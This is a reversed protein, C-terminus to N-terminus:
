ADNKISAEDRKRRRMVGLGVSGMALLGLMSFSGPEPIATAGARIGNGSADYFGEFIRVSFESESGEFGGVLDFQLRLWGFRSEGDSDEFSIGALGPVGYEFGNAYFSPTSSSSAVKKKAVKKKKKAVRVVLDANGYFGYNSQAPYKVLFGSSLNAFAFSSSSALIGLPAIGSIKKKKKKGTTFGANFNANSFSSYASVFFRGDELGDGNLDFGLSESGLGFLTASLDDIGSDVIQGELPEAGLLSVASFAVAASAAGKGIKKGAGNLNARQRYHQLQPNSSTENSPTSM